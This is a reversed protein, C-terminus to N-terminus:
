KKGIVNILSGELIMEVQRNTLNHHTKYFKNKTKNELIISNGNYLKKSIDEIILFDDREIKEWDDPNDFELRLIGFNALNQNM